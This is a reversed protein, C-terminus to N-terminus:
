STEKEEQKLAELYAVSDRADVRDLINRLDLVILEPDVDRRGKASDNIDEILKEIRQRLEEAEAGHVFNHLDCYKGLECILTKM